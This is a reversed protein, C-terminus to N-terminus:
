NVLDYHETSELTVQTVKNGMPCAFYEHIYILYSNVVWQYSNELMM